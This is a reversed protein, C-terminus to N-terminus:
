VNSIRHLAHISACGGIDDIVGDWGKLPKVRREERAAKDGGAWCRWEKGM